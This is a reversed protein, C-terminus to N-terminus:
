VMRMILDNIKDGRDGLAGGRAFSNKIGKRGFGKRPSNLRYFKKGEDRKKLLEITDANAEGWTIFDKAKNLMGRVSPTDELLVCYNKRHLNLFTMTDKMDYRVGTLGRVRVAVVMKPVNALSRETKVVAKEKNM